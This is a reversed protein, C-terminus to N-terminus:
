FRTLIVYGCQRTRFKGGDGDSEMVEVDVVDFVMGVVPEACLPGQLTAIQFGAGISDEFDRLMRSSPSRATRDRISTSITVVQCRCLCSCVCSNVIAGPRRDLLLNPGVKLPGFSWIRDCTGKWEPGAKAFLDALAGWFEHDRVTPKREVDGETGGPIDIDDQGLEDETERVVLESPVPTESNTQAHESRQPNGAEADRRIQKLLSINAQLFEIIEKPLPLARLKFKVLGHSSSEIVTGRPLNPGAKPPPLDARRTQPVLSNFIDLICVQPASQQRVFLYSLSPPKYKWRQSASGFTKSVVSDIWNTIASCPRPLM